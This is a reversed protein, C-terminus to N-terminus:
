GQWAEQGPPSESVSKVFDEPLDIDVDFYEKLEVLAKRAARNTPLPALGDKQAQVMRKVSDALKGWKRTNLAEAYEVALSTKGADYSSASLLYPYKVLFAEAVPLRLASLSEKWARADSSKSQKAVNKIHDIMASICLEIMSMDYQSSKLRQNIADIWADWKETMGKAYTIAEYNLPTGLLREELEPWRVGANYDRKKKFFEVAVSPYKLMLTSVTKSDVDYFNALRGLISTAIYGPALGIGIENSDPYSNFRVAKKVLASLLKVRSPQDDIDQAAQLFVSLADDNESDFLVDSDENSLYALIKNREQNKLEAFEDASIADYLTNVLMHRVALSRLKEPIPMDISQCISKTRNFFYEPMMGDVGRSQREYDDAFDTLLKTMSDNFSDPTLNRAAINNLMSEYMSLSMKAHPVIIDLVAPPIKVEANDRDMPESLDSCIQMNPRNGAFVLFMFEFKDLYHRARPNPYSGRTCWRTGEGLKKLSEENDVKYVDLGNAPNDPNADEKTKGLWQVGPLKEFDEKLGGASKSSAQSAVRLAEELQNLSKYDNINTSKGANRLNQKSNVFDWLAQKIIEAREYLQEDIATYSLESGELESDKYFDLLRKAIWDGHPLRTNDVDAARVMSALDIWDYDNGNLQRGMARAVKELIGKSLAETISSLHM